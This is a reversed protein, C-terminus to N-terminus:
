KCIKGDILIFNELELNQSYRNLFIFTNKNENIKQIFHFYINITNKMTLESVIQLTFNDWNIKRNQYKTSPLEKAKSFAFKLDECM